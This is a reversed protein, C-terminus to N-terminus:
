KEAVVASTDDRDWSGVVFRGGPSSIPVLVKAISTSISTIAKCSWFSYITRESRAVVYMRARLICFFVM